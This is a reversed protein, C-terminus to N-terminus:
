SNEHSMLVFFFPCIWIKFTLFFQVHIACVFWSRPDQCTSYNEINKLGVQLLVNVITRRNKNTYARFCNVLM